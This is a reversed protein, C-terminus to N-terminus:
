SNEKWPKEYLTKLSAIDICSYPMDEIKGDPNKFSIDLVYWTMDEGRFPTTSLIDFVHM